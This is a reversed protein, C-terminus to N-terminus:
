VVRNASSFPEQLFSITSLLVHGNGVDPNVFAVVAGLLEVVIDGEHFEGLGNIEAAWISAGGTHWSRVLVVTAGLITHERSPSQDFTVGLSESILELLDGAFDPRGATKCSIIAMHAKGIVDDTEAFGALSPGGAHTVRTAREDAGVAATSVVDDTDHRESGTGARAFGTDEGLDGFVPLPKV